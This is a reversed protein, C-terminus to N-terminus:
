CRRKAISTNTLNGKHIMLALFVVLSLQTSPSSSVTSSETDSQGAGPLASAGLALGDALSHIVLGLTLPFARARSAKEKDKSDDRKSVLPESIPDNGELERLAMDFAEDESTRRADKNPNM